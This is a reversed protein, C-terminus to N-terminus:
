PNIAVDIVGAMTSAIPGGRFDLEIVNLLSGDPNYWRLKGKSTGYMFWDGGLDAHISKKRASAPLELSPTQPDVPFLEVTPYGDESEGFTLVGSNGGWARFRNPVIRRVRDTDIIATSYWNVTAAVLQGDPSMRLSRVFRMWPEDARPGEELVGAPGFRSMGDSSDVFVSRRALFFLSGDNSFDFSRNMQPGMISPAPIRFRKIVQTRLGERRRMEWTGENSGQVLYALSRETPSWSPCEPFLGRAAAVPHHLSEHHAVWLTGGIARARASPGYQTQKGTLYALLEGDVSWSPCFPRDQGTGLPTTEDDRLVAYDFSFADRSSPLPSVVAGSLPSWAHVRWRRGVLKTRAGSPAIHWLGRPWTGTQFRPGTDVVLVGSTLPDSAAAAPKSTSLVLVGDAPRTSAASASVLLAILLQPVLGGQGFRTEM